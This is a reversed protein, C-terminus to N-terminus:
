LHGSESLSAVIETTISEVQTDDGMFLLGGAKTSSDGVWIVNATKIDYLKARTSSYRRIASVATTSGSYSVTNGYANAQGTSVYGITESSTQSGILTVYMITDFGQKILEQAVAGNTWERTPPFMALFSEAYVGRNKFKEIMSKELLDGFQFGANPARVVVKRIRYGQYDRDTFGKVNTTICSTLGGLVTVLIVALSIGLKM